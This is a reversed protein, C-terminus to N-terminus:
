LIIPHLNRALIYGNRDYIIGRPAPMSVENTYNDVASIKWSSGEILQLNVLRFLLSSFALVVVLIYLLLLRWTEFRVPRPRSWFENTSRPLIFGARLIACSPM